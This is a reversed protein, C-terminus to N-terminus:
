PAAPGWFQINDILEGGDNQGAIRLKYIPRSSIVGWFAPASAPSSATTTGIVNGYADWITIDCAGGNVVVQLDLAVAYRPTPRLIVETSENWANPGVRSSVCGLYGDTVNVLCRHLPRGEQIAIGPTLAGPPFVDGGYLGVAPIGLEVPDWLAEIDNSALTTGEFDEFGLQTYGADVAAGAFNAENTFYTLTAAACGEGYHELMLSLDGLNVAGDGTLDGDSYAAGSATGYSGLLLSLDSLSVCGDEDLDGPLAPAPTGNWMQINDALPWGYYPTDIHWFGIDIRGIPRDSVVGWFRAQDPGNPTTTIMLADGRADWIRLQISDAWWPDQLDFAIAYKNEGAFWMRYFFWGGMGGFMDMSGIRNSIAGPDSDHQFFGTTALQLGQPGDNLPDAEITLDPAALGDPFGNGNSDVCPVGATLPDLLVYQGGPPAVAEEFDEVAFLTYGAAVAAASFDAQNDYFAVGGSASSGLMALAAGCALRQMM